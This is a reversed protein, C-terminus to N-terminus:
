TQSYRVYSCVTGCFKVYIFIYTSHKYFEIFEFVRSQNQEFIGRENVFGYTTQKNFEIFTKDGVTWPRIFCYIM